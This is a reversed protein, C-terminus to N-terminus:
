RPCPVGARRVVAELARTVTDTETRAGLARRARDLLTQELRLTKKRAGPEVSASSPDSVQLTKSKRASAMFLRQYLPYTCYTCILSLFPHCM